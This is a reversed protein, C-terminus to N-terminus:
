PFDTASTSVIESTRGQPARVSMVNWRLTAEMSVATTRQLAGQLGEEAESLLGADALSCALENSVVVCVPRTDTKSSPYALARRLSDLNWDSTRAKTQAL